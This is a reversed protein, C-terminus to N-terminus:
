EFGLIPSTGVVDGGVYGAKDSGGFDFRGSRFDDYGPMISAPCEVGPVFSVGVVYSTSIYLEVYGNQVGHLAVALYSLLETSQNPQNSKPVDVGDLTSWHNVNDLWDAASGGSLSWWGDKITISVVQEGAVHTHNETDMKTLFESTRNKFMNATQNASSIRSDLVVGYLTPVLIGALVGIIAIVAVLEVMTFGKDAAARKM